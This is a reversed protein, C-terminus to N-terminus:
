YQRLLRALVGPEPSRPPGSQKLTRGMMSAIRAAQAMPTPERRNIERSAASNTGDRM